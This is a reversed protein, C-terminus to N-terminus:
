EETDTDDQQDHSTLVNRHIQASSVKDQVLARERKLHAIQKSLIADPVPPQTMWSISIQDGEVKWRHGDTHYMFEEYQVLLLPSPSVTERILMMTSLHYTISSIILELPNKKGRGCFSSTSDAVTFGSLAKCSTIDKM